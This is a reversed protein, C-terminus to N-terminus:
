QRGTLIQTQTFGMVVAIFCALLREHNVCSNCGGNANQQLKRSAALAAQADGMERCTKLKIAAGQQM